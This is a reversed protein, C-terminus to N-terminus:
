IQYNNKKEESCGTWFIAIFTAPTASSDFFDGPTPDTYRSGFSLLGNSSLIVSNYKAGLFRHTSSHSIKNCLVIEYTQFTDIGFHKRFLFITPVMMWLLFHETGM